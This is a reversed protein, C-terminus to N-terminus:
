NLLGYKKYMDAIRYKVDKDANMYIPSNKTGIYALYQADSGCNLVKNLWKYYKYDNVMLYHGYDNDFSFGKIALYIHYLEHVAILLRGNYSYKSYSKTNIQVLCQVSVEFKYIWNIVPSDLNEDSDENLVFYM